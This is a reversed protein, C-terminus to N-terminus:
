QVVSRWTVDAHGDASDAVALSRASGGIVLEGIRLPFHGIIEGGGSVLLWTTSDNAVHNTELGFGGDNLHVVSAIPPFTAPLRAGMRRTYSLTACYINPRPKPQHILSDCRVIASDISSQFVSRYFAEQLQRARLPTITQAAFPTQGTILLSPAGSTDYIEIRVQRGFPVYIVSGDALIDWVPHRWILSPVEIMDGGDRRTALARVHMRPSGLKGAISVPAITAPAVDGAQPAPEVNLAWTGRPGVRVDEVSRRVWGATVQGDRFQTLRALEPDWITLTGRGNDAASKVSRYQGIEHGLQGIEAVYSGVSDVEVLGSNADFYVVHNQSLVYAQKPDLLLMCAVNARGGPPCFRAKTRLRLRPVASEPRWVVHHAFETDAAAEKHQLNGCACLAVTTVIGTWHRGLTM